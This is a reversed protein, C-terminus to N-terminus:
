STMHVEYIAYICIYVILQNRSISIIKRSEKLILHLPHTCCISLIEKRKKKIKHICGLLSFTPALSNFPYVLTRHTTYHFRQM